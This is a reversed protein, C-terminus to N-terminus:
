MLFFSPRIKNKTKIDTRYTKADGLWDAGRQNKDVMVPRFSTGFRPNACTPGRSEEYLDSQLIEPMKALLQQEEAWGGVLSSNRGARNGWFLKKKFLDSTAAPQFHYM